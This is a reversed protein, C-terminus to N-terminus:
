AENGVYVGNLLAKVKEQNKMRILSIQEREFCVENVDLIVPECQFGVLVM